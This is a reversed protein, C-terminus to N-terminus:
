SRWRSRLNVSSSFPSSISYRLDIQGTRADGEHFAVRFRQQGMPPSPQRRRRHPRATPASSPRAAGPHRQGHRRQPPLQRIASRRPLHSVPLGRLGAASVVRRLAADTERVMVAFAPAVILNAVDPTQPFAITIEDLFQSLIRGAWWIKATTPLPLDLRIGEVGVCRLGKRM